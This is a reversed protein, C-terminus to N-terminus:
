VHSILPPHFQVYMHYDEASRESPANKLTEYDGVAKKHHAEVKKEVLDRIEPTEKAWMERTVRNRTNIESPMKAGEAVPTKLIIAWEAKFVPKIRDQYYM